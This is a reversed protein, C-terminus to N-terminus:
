LQNAALPDIQRPSRKFELLPAKLNDRERAPLNDRERAPLNDRCRAPLNDRCRAPLNDSILLGDRMHSTESARLQLHLPFRM